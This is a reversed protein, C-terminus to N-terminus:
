FVPLAQRTHTLAVTVESDGAVKVLWYEVTGLSVLAQHGEPISAILVLM